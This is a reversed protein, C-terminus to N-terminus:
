DNKKENKTEETQKYYELGMNWYEPWTHMIKQVNSIDAHLLAQSLGKLFSGGSREWGKQVQISEEIIVAIDKEIKVGIDMTFETIDKKM